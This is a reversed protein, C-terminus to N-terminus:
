VYVITSNRSVRAPRALPRNPVMVQVSSRGSESPAAANRASSSPATAAALITRRMHVVRWQGCAGFLPASFAAGVGGAMGTLAYMRREGEDAQPRRSVIWAGFAGGGVVVGFAPGLSAGAVLSVASIVVLQAASGPDVWGRKFFAVAGPVDKAVRLRARLFAVLMAGASVFLIWWWSGSFPESTPSGFVLEILTTTVGSFVLALLGGFGGILVAAGILERYWREAIPVASTSM